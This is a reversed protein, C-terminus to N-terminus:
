SQNGHGGKAALNASSQQGGGGRIEM